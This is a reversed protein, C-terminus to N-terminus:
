RAGRGAARAWAAAAAGGLSSLELPPLAPLAAAAEIQLDPEPVVPGRVVCGRLRVANGRQLDVLRHNGDLRCGFLDLAATGGFRREDFRASLADQNRALELGIAAAKAGDQLQLGRGGGTIAGGALVVRAGAIAHVAAGGNGTLSCDALLAEGGLLWVGDTAAREVRCEALTLAAQVADLAVGACGLFVCREAAVAAHIAQLQITGGTFACHQLRVDRVEVLRLLLGRGQLECRALLSGDGGSGRLTLLPPAAAGGTDDGEADRRLAIPQTDTGRALLRGGVTLGAGAALTVTTGPTLVLDGPLTRPAAIHVEGSWVEAPASRAAASEGVGFLHDVRTPDIRDTPAAPQWRGDARQVLVELPQPPPTADQLVLDWATAAVERSYVKFFPGIVQPAQRLQSLLGIQLEVETGGQGLALPVPSTTPNDAQRFRLMGRAAAHVPTPLRLRLRAVAARDQLLLRVGDATAAWRPPEGAVLFAREVAAFIHAVNRQLQDLLGLVHDPAPPRLNPDRAAAARGIALAAQLEQHFRERGGARFFRELAAHRAALFGADGLLWHHLRTPNFDLSIPHEPGVVEMGNWANPDWVLPVLRGRFPDHCLRWNHTEDTHAYQILTELASLRGMAAVDVLQRLERHAAADQPRDLLACLRHIPSRDPAADGDQAVARWLGPHDFVYNDIGRWQDRATLEGAWITGPAQGLRPLTGDDIQEVLCYLGHMRGNLWVTVLESHPALVGLERALAYGLHETVQMGTKPAILNFTRLGLWRDRKRLRIRLSKKPHGWHVRFDGRYRLDIALEQGDVVMTGAVTDGGSDPLRADLAALAAAPVFLQLNRTGPLLDQTRAHSAIQRLMHRAHDRGEHLLGFVGVPDANRLRFDAYREGFGVLWAVFFAAIPLTALPSWVWLWRLARTM